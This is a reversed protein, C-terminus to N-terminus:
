SADESPDRDAADPGEWQVSRVLDDITFLNAFDSEPAAETQSILNESVLGAIIRGLDQSCLIHMETLARRAESQNIFQQAVFERMADCFEGATITGARLGAWPVCSQIADMVFMLSEVPYGIRRAPESLVEYRKKLLEEPTEAVFASEAVPRGCEPCRHELTLGRLNYGCGLCPVDENIEVPKQSM